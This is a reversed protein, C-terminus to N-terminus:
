QNDELFKELRKQYTTSESILEAIIMIGAEWEKIIGYSDEPNSLYDQVGLTFSRHMMDEEWKNFNEQTIYGKGRIWFMINFANMDSDFYDLFSEGAEMEWDIIKGYYYEKSM